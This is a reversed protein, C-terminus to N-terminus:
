SLIFGARILEGASAVRLNSLYFSNLSSHKMFSEHVEISGEKFAQLAHMPRM